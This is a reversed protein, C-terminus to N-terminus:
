GKLVSSNFSKGKSLRTDIIYHLEKIIGLTQVGMAATITMAIIKHYWFNQTSFMMEQQM